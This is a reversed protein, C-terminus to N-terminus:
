DEISATTPTVDARHSDLYDQLIVAAAAADLRVKRKRWDRENFALRSDAEHSSLREDQLVIPVRVLAQLRAVMRRVHRTEDTESGDLRRPLGVVVADVGDDEAALADVASALAAAAHEDSAMRDLTRLPRALTGSPDSIALGVRKRGLDVGVIRV